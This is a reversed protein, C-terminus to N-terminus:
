ESPLSTELITIFKSLHGVEKGQLSPMDMGNVKNAFEEELDVDALIIDQRSTKFEGIEFGSDCHIKFVKLNATLTKRPKTGDQFKAPKLKWSLFADSRLGAFAEYLEESARMMKDFAFAANNLRSELKEEMLLRSDLIKYSVEVIRLVNFDFFAQSANNLDNVLQEPKSEGSKVDKLLDNLIKLVLELTFPRTENEYVVQDGVFTGHFWQNRLWTIQSALEKDFLEADELLTKFSPMWKRLHGEEGIVMAELDFFVSTLTRKLTDNIYHKSPDSYRKEDQQSPKGNGCLLELFSQQQKIFQGREHKTIEFFYRNEFFATCFPWIMYKQSLLALVLVTGYVSINGQYSTRCLSVMANERVFKELDEDFHIPSALYYHANEVRIDRFLSLYRNFQELSLSKFRPLIKLAKDFKEQDADESIDIQCIINLYRDIDICLGLLASKFGALDHGLARYADDLNDRLFVKM